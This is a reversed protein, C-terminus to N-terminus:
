TARSEREALRRLPAHLREPLEALALFHDLRAPDLRQETTTNRTRRPLRFLRGDDDGLFERAVLRNSEEWQAMFEDLIPAPLTLVPGTAASALRTVLRRYRRWDDTPGTGGPETEARHLNVLRLFEVSEADLSENTPEPQELQEVRAEVGAADLFDQYLSGGAFDPPEFRRVVLETPEVIRQWSRLRAHHDYLRSFDRGRTREALRRVEGTKVAQQYRSILHDDQRRLYVLVRVGGATRRTLARLRELSAPPSGYLVEDSLLVRTLGSRNIEAFLRRRFNKRFSAPDSEEQRRWVPSGELQADPKVFLGLRGHRTLGPSRPYLVGLEALRSRNQHLFRQTSSTGTRGSGVHLVLDVPHDLKM